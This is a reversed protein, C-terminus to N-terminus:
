HVSCAMCPDSSRVIRALEMPNEGDKVRTGILMQEVAGPKNDADRPSMNWTTPVVMEYHRIRGEGDTEIWHALAGRTAETIGVGSANKPVDREIYALEGAKVHQIDRRLTDLTLKAQIWRSTHRGLVSVLDGVQINLERCTKDVLATLAPNTGAHYTNIVRAAPGVEMVEGGYRPARSWSYKGDAKEHERHFGAEDIPALRGSKGPRIDRDPQNTYYAYRHDETIRALDLPQYRGGITAGGAIMPREGDADPLYPYSLLNGHGKGEYFYGPFEAAVGLLDQRFNHEIFPAIRELMQEYRMILDVTPRTTVGGAEITVPHPAKAGFLAVMKHLEAMVPLADLYNKIASLNLDPNEVYAAEYRPLFPAAPFVKGSALENRVWDRVGSLAPDSGRYGLVATIDIFDLSCLTYFHLLYDQLQYAGVTLNRLLQGNRNPRLGMADELALSAAEAHAYPCVGCVRQTVQQAVRADHGVLAAEIGRFMDASCRADTVLGDVISTEIRLHGEIRTVPDVVIRGGSM